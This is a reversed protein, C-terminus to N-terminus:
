ITKWYRRTILTEGDFNNEIKDALVFGNKEMVRASALNTDNCTLLVRSLGLKKATANILSLKNAHLDFSHIECKGDGDIAASFSKGGPASCTDAIVDGAAAGLVWTCIRSAEDQVFWLGETSETVGRSLCLRCAFPPTWIDASPLRKM